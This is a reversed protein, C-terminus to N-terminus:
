TAPQVAFGFKGLKAGPRMAPVSPVAGVLAPSVRAKTTLIFGLPATSNETRIPPEIEACLRPIATVEEPYIRTLPIALAAPKGAVAPAILRPSSELRQNRISIPVPPLLTTKEAVPTPPLEIASSEVPLM